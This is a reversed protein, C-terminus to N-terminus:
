PLGKRTAFAAYVGGEKGEGKEKGKWEAGCILILTKV